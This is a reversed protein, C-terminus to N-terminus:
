RHFPAYRPQILQVSFTHNTQVAADHIATFYVKMDTMNAAIGSLFASGRLGLDDYQHQEQSLLNLEDSKGSIFGTEGAGHAAAFTYPNLGQTIRVWDLVAMRQAWFPGVNNTFWNRGLALQTTTATDVIVGDVVVNYTGLPLNTVAITWTLMSGLAPFEAFCARADNTRLNGDPVDFGPPMRDSRGVWNLFTASKSLSSVTWHNTVASLDSYNITFNGVNTEWGLQRIHWLAMATSDPDLPHGLPAFQSNSVLLGNTYLVHWTDVIPAGIIGAVNTSGANRAVAGSDGDGSNNPIGGMPFWGWLLSGFGENTSATGNWFLGPGTIIKATWQVVPNTTTYGGNDTQLVFFMNTGDTFNGAPLFREEETTEYIGETSVGSGSLNFIYNTFQSEMSAIYAALVAGGYSYGSNYSSWELGGRIPKNPLAQAPCTECDHMLMLFLIALLRKM